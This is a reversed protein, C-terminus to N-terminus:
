TPISPFTSLVRDPDLGVEFPTYRKPDFTETHAMGGGMWLLIVTDATAKPKAKASADEAVVSRVPASAAMAALSANRCNRLFERRSQEKTMVVLLYDPIRANVLREM